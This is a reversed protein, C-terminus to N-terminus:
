DWYRPPLSFPIESNLVLRTWITLELCALAVFPPSVYFFFIVWQWKFKRQLPKAGIRSFKEVLTHFCLHWASLFILHVSFYFGSRLPDPCSPICLWPYCSLVYYAYIWLHQTQTSHPYFNDYMPSENFKHKPINPLWHPQWFPVSCSPLLKHVLFM